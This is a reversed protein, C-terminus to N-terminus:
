KKGAKWSYGCKMCTLRVKRAGINGATLGIGGTLAAGVVAKGIGFGKKNASLSSSHCKPCYPIGERDMQKIREKELRKEEQNKEIIQLLFNKKNSTKESTPCGCNPCASAKDSFEKGCEPCIILAM